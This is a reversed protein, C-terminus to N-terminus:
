RKVRLKWCLDVSFLHEYKFTDTVNFRIFTPRYILGLHFYEGIQVYGPFVSGLAKNKQTSRRTFYLNEGFAFGYGFSFRNVKHNLSFSMYKSLTSERSQRIDSVFSNVGNGALTWSLNLFQHDSYHYDLGFSIGLFENNLKIGQEGEPRLLFNNEFPISINFYLNGSQPLAYIFYGPDADSLDVYINKPYTFRKSSNLDWLLGFGYSPPLANLFVTRSIKSKLLITKSLSDTYVTIEVPEKKRELYFHAVNNETEITDPDFMIIAPENTVLEIGVYPINIITACSTCGLVLTLLIYKM